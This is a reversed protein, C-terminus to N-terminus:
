RDCDVGSRGEGATSHWDHVGTRQHEGLQHLEQGTVLEVGADAAVVAVASRASEGAAILEEAQGEGLEGEAFAEAVDFGAEADEPGFQVVGAEAPADGAAGEGIGVANVVPSDIAVEGVDEDILCACKVGAFQEADREM